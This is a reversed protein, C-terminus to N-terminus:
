VTWKRQVQPSKDVVLLMKISMPPSQLRPIEKLSRCLIFLPALLCVSCRVLNVPKAVARQYAEDSMGCAM